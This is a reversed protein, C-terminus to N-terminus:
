FYNVFFYIIYKYKFYFDNIKKKIKNQLYDLDVLKIELYTKNITIQDLIIRHIKNRIKSYLAIKLYRIIKLLMELYVVRNPIKIKIKLNCIVLYDKVLHKFKM